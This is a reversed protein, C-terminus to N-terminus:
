SGQTNTWRAGLLRPMQEQGVYGPETAIAAKSFGREVLEQLGWGALAAANLIDALPRHHFTVSAEATPMLSSGARFYSGWRWLFEGDTQDLIPGSGPATFAPHNMVLALMGGPRVVRALSAFIDLDALHEIVLVLYAGDVVERRLWRLDPLEARAVPGRQSAHRLLEMSIDCGIVRGDHLAMVQGEGCGVDLLMGPMHATLECLLPLVDLKYIPDHSIEELWWEAHGNWENGSERTM